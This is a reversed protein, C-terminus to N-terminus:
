QYIRIKVILFYILYFLLGMMVVISVICFITFISFVVLETRTFEKSLLIPRSLVNLEAISCSYEIGNSYQDVYVLCCIYGGSNQKNVNELIFTPNRNYRYKMLTNNIVLKNSELYRPNENFVWQYYDPKQAGYNQNCSFTTKENEYVSQNAPVIIPLYKKGIQFYIFEWIFYNEFKILKKYIKSIFKVTM